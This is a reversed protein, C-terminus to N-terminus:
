YRVLQLLELLLGSIVQVTDLQRPAPILVEVMIHEAAILYMRSIQRDAVLVM